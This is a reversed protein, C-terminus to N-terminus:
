KLFGEVLAIFSKESENGLSLFTTDPTQVRGGYIYLHDESSAGSELSYVFTIHIVDTDDSFSKFMDGEVPLSCMLTFISEIEPM